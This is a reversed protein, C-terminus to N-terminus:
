KAPITRTDHEASDRSYNFWNESCNEWDSEGIERYQRQMKSKRKIILHELNPMIVIKIMGQKTTM